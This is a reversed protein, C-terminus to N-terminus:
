RSEKRSEIEKSLDDLGLGKYSMLVFLHYLLDASEEILRQKSEKTAAKIVEGSEEAIKACIRFVGAKLLAATYSKRPMKGKRDEIVSFLEAFADLSKGEKFCSYDGVHCTIGSPRVKVLLADNDCDPKISILNLFNKSTEGKMWLRQKSRSYFWVRNTKLTKALSQKNMYGLMLVAKTDADQIIGPVLGNNKTWNIKKTLNKM